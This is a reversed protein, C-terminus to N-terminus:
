KNIWRDLWDTVAGYFFRSDDGKVIWHNEDPWILLKAPVQMRQVAAYMELTNNMPVRFDREGVSLLIPTKFNAAYTIPSQARWLPDGAWPPGGIMLERHYIADSTGWQSQL